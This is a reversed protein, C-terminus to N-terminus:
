QGGHWGPAGGPRLPRLGTAAATRRHGGCRDELVEHRDRVIADEHIGTKGTVLGSEIHQDFAM